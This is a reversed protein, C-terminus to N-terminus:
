KTTPRNTRVLRYTCQVCGFPLGSSRSHHSTSSQKEVVSILELFLQKTQYTSCAWFSALLVKLPTFCGVTACILEFFLQKAKFVFLCIFCSLTLELFFQFNKVCPFCFLKARFLATPQPM